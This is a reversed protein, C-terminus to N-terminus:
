ITLLFDAHAHAGKVVPFTILKIAPFGGIGSSIFQVFVAGGMQIHKNMWSDPSEYLVIGREIIETLFSDGLALRQKIKAPSYVIVDLGFMPNLYQRIQMAQQSERELTEM